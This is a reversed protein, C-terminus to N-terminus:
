NGFDHPMIETEQSSENQLLDFWCTNCDFQDLSNRHDYSYNLDYALHAATCQPKHTGRCSGTKLSWWHQRNLFRFINKFLSYANQHLYDQRVRFWHLGSLLTGQSQALTCLLSTFTFSSIFTLTVWNKSSSFRISLGVCLWTLQIFYCRGAEDPNPNVQWKQITVATKSM